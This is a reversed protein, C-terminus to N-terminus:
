QNNCEVKGEEMQSQHPQQPQQLQQSPPNNGQRSRPPGYPEDFDPEAFGPRIPPSRPPSAARMLGVPVAAATKKAQSDLLRDLTSEMQKQKDLMISQEKKLTQVEELLTGLRNFTGDLHAAMNGAYHVDLAAKNGQFGCGAISYKCPLIVEICDTQLHARLAGREIRKGCKQPCDVVIKMCEEDLHRKLGCRRVKDKCWQCDVPGHECKQKHSDLDKRLIGKTGCGYDCSVEGFGCYKQMHITRDGYKGLWDCDRNGCRVKYSCIIKWVGEDPKLTEKTAPRRCVPCVLNVGLWAEICKRCFLHQCPLAVPDNLVGSGISCTVEELMDSHIFIEPPICTPTPTTKSSEM